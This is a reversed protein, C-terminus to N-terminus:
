DYRLSVAAVPDLLYYYTLYIATTVAAWNFDFALHDSFTKHINPFFSPTPIYASIM